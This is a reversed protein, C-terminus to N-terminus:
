ALKGGTPLPCSAGTGALGCYGGPNKALYQQHYAEAYFFDPTTEDAKGGRIETTIAGYGRATLASQFQARTAEATERQEATYCYIASRYQSGVDNGQRMGQTPDHAEWFEKLLRAYSIAAPDYVVLVMETHGTQGSCTEQYTPNPTFGGAYGVATSFVGPLEWFAREAGWFCGMAFQATQLGEPFPAKIPHGNVFHADPVPMSMTRGPLASAASVLSSSKGFLGM